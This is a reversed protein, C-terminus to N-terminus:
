LQGIKMKVTDFIFIPRRIRNNNRIELFETKSHYLGQKIIAYIHKPASTLNIITLQITTQIVFGLAWARSLAKSTDRISIKTLVEM